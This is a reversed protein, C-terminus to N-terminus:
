TEVVTARCGVLYGMGGFREGAAVGPGFIERREQGAAAVAPAGRARVEQGAEAQDIVPRVGVGAFGEAVEREVAVGGVVGAPGPPEVRVPRRPRDDLGLHDSREDGRSAGARFGQDGYQDV